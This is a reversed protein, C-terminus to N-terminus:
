EATYVNVSKITIKTEKSEPTGEVEAQANRGDACIKEIVDFGEVTQGFVTDRGDLYPAGGENEYKETMEETRESLAKLCYEELSKKREYLKLNDKYYELEKGSAESILENLQNISRDYFDTMGSFFNEEVFTPLITSSFYFDDTNFGDINVNCLAGYFHRLNTNYELPPVDSSNPAYDEGKLEGAEILGRSNYVVEKGDYFGKKALDSFRKVTEPAAEPFLKCVIKGYGEIKIEACTDGKKIKVEGFNGTFEESSDPEKPEPPIMIEKEMEEPSAIPFSFAPTTEEQLANTTTEETLSPEGGQNNCGCLVLISLASLTAAIKKINNKM